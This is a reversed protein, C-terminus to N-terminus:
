RPSAMMIYVDLKRLLAHELIADTAGHDALIDELSTTISSIGWLGNDALDWEKYDRRILQAVTLGTVDRKATELASLAQDLSNRSASARFSEAQLFEVVTM